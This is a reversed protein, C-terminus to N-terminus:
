LKFIINDIIIKSKECCYMQVFRLEKEDLFGCMLHIQDPSMSQIENKTIIQGDIDISIVYKM